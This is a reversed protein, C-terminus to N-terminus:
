EALGVLICLLERCTNVQVQKPSVNIFTSIQSPPERLVMFREIRCSAVKRSTMRLPEIESAARVSPRVCGATLEVIAPRSVSSSNFSNTRSCPRRTGVGSASNKRSSASAMRLRSSIELRVRRPRALRSCPWSRTAPMGSAVASQRGLLRDFNMASLGLTLTARALLVEASISSSIAACCNSIPNASVGLARFEKSWISKSRSHMHAIGAVSGRAEFSTM